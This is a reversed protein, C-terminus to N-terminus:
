HLLYSDPNNAIGHEAYDKGLVFYERQAKSRLAIKPQKTNNIAAVSANYSMHWAAMDWFNVNKPTLTTVTSMLFNMRGYEVRQWATQAEIWLVDAVPTRFGSLAALFGLQSLRERLGLDLKVTGFSSAQRERSLRIELPLRVLGFILIVVTALAVQIRGRPKPNPLSLTTEM